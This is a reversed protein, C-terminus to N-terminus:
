QSMRKLTKALDDLAEQVQANVVQVSGTADVLRIQVRCCPCIVTIGAVVEALVVWVLYECQPCPVGMPHGMLDLSSSAM